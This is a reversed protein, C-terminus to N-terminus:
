SLKSLYQLIEDYIKKFNEVQKELTTESSVKMKANQRIYEMTLDYAAKNKLETNM